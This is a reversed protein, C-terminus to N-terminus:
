NILKTHKLIHKALVSNEVEFTIMAGFGRAQKKCIEHGQSGEIGPYYVKKVKPQKPFMGEPAFDALNIFSFRPTKTGTGESEKEKEDSNGKDANDSDTEDNKIASAVNEVVKEINEAESDAEDEKPAMKPENVPKQPNSTFMEMGGFMNPDFGMNNMMDMTTRMCDSCVCMNGPMKFMKGAQSESRRCIMCIDEYESMYQGRELM